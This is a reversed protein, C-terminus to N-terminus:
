LKTERKEALLRQAEEVLAKTGKYNAEEDPDRFRNYIRRLLVPSNKRHLFIDNQWNRAARNLEEEDAKGRFTLHWLEDMRYRLHELSSAAALNTKIENLGLTFAPGLSAFFYALKDLKDVGFLWTAVVIPAALLILFFVISKAYRRRLQADWSLNSRQCVIRGFPLPLDDVPGSYWNELPQNPYNNPDYKAAYEVTLDDLPPNGISEYNWPMQLVECDFQEQIKAAKERYVAEWSTFPYVNLLALMGSGLLSVLNSDWLLKASIAWAIAVPIAFFFRWAQLRRAEDYLQRQAALRQLQLPENQLDAIRKM